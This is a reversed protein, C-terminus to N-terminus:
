GNNLNLVLSPMYYANIYIDATILVIIIILVFLFLLLFELISSHFTIQFLRAKKKKKQCGWMRSKESLAVKLYLM